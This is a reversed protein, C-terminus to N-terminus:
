IRAVTESGARKIGVKVVGARALAEADAAKEL